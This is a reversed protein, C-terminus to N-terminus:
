QINEAVYENYDMQHIHNTFYTICRELDIKKKESLKKKKLCKQMANLVEVAGKKEHKLTHCM